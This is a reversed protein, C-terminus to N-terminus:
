PLENLVEMLRRKAKHAARLESIMKRWDDLRNEKECIQHIKNLFPKASRYADPKVQAIFADVISKWIEIAVDPHSRRVADAVAEQRGHSAFSSDRAKQYSRYLLVVDDLRKELIAVDIMTALDPSVNRRVACKKRLGGVDTQPLQPAAGTSKRVFAGTELYSLAAERVADWCGAKQSDERLESYTKESPGDLFDDVRYSVALDFKGEDIAMERLLEHLDGAVGRLNEVTNKYGEIAWKKAREREGRQLLMEVLTKYLATSETERELLPIVRGDLNAARYAEILWRVTKERMWTESYPGGSKAKTSKLREDLCEAVKAWVDPGYAESKLFDGCGYLLGYEDRLDKDIYWVIQEHPPMSSGLLAGVVIEICEAIDSQTEGEDDSQEIQENGCEWLEEGLDILEDHYGNALLSEFSEKLHSYDPLNREDNWHNSWAPQSAVKVIERRLSDVLANTKGSAIAENERIFRKVDPYIGAMRLLLEILESHTKKELVCKMGDIDKM